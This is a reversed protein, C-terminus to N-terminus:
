ELIKQNNSNLPHHSPLIQQSQVSFSPPISTSSTITQASKPTLHAVPVHHYKLWITQLPKLHPQQLYSLPKINKRNFYNDM